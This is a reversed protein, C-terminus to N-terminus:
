NQKNFCLQKKSPMYPLLRLLMATPKATTSVMMLDLHAVLLSKFITSVQTHLSCIFLM